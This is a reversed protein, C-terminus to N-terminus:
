QLLRIHCICETSTYLLSDLTKSKEKPNLIPSKKNGVFHLCRKRTWSKEGSCQLHVINYTSLSVKSLSFATADTKEDTKKVQFKNNPSKKNRFSSLYSDKDRNRKRDCLEIKQHFRLAKLSSFYNSHANLVMKPLFHYQFPHTLIYFLTLM